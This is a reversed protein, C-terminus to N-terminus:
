ECSDELEYRNCYDISGSIYECATSYLCKIIMYGTGCYRIVLSHKCTECKSEKYEIENSM